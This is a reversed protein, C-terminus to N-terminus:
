APMGQSSTRFRMLDSQRADEEVGGSGGLEIFAVAPVLPLARAEAIFEKASGPRHEFQDAVRRQSERQDVPVPATGDKPLEGVTQDVADDTRLHEDDGTKVAFAM